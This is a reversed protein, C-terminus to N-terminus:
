STNNLKGYKELMNLEQAGLTMQRKELDTITEGIKQMSFNMDNNVFTVDEGDSLIESDSDAFMDYPNDITDESHQIMENKDKDSEANDTKRIQLTVDNYISERSRSKALNEQSNMLSSASLSSASLKRIRSYLAGQIEKKVPELKEMDKNSEESHKAIDHVTHRRYHFSNKEHTPSETKSTSAGVNVEFDNCIERSSDRETHLSSNNAIAFLKSDREVTVNYQGEKISSGSSSDSYDVNPETDKLDGAIDSTKIKKKKDIKAYLQEPSTSGDRADGNHEKQYVDAHEYDKLDSSDSDSRKTVNMEEVETKKETEEAHVVVVQQVDNDSEYGPNNTGGDYIENALSEFDLLSENDDSGEDNEMKLQDARGAPLFIEQQLASPPKNAFLDASSNARTMLQFDSKIQIDALGTM